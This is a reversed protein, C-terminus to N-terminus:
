LWGSVLGVSSRQMEEEGGHPNSELDHDSQPGGLVDEM